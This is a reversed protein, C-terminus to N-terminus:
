LKKELFICMQMRKYIIGSSEQFYMSPRPIQIIELKISIMIYEITHQIEWDCDCRVAMVYVTVSLHFGDKGELSAGHM